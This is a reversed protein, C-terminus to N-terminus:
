VLHSCICVLLRLEHHMVTKREYSSGNVRTDVFSFTSKFNFAVMLFFNELNMIMFAVATFQDVKLTTVFLSKLLTEPSCM